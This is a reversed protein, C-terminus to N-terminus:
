KEKRLDEYRISRYQILPDFAPDRYLLIIDIAPRGEAYLSVLAGFDKESFEDKPAFYAIVGSTANFAEKLLEDPPIKIRIEHIEDNSAIDALLRSVAVSPPISLDSRREKHISYRVEFDNRDNQLVLDYEMFEHNPPITVHLWQETPEAYELGAKKLDRTFNATYIIQGSAFDSMMWFCVVSLVVNWANSKM